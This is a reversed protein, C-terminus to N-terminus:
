LGLLVELMKKRQVTLILHVEGTCLPASPTFHSRGSPSCLLALPSPLSYIRQNILLPKERWLLLLLGLTTPLRCRRNQLYIPSRGWFGPCLGFRTGGERCAKSASFALMAQGQVCRYGDPAEGARKESGPQSALSTHQSIDQHCVHALLATSLGESKLFDRPGLSTHELLHKANELKGRQYSFWPTPNEKATTEKGFNASSGQSPAGCPHPIQAQGSIKPLM